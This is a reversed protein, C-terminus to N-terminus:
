WLWGVYDMIEILDIGIFVLMIVCGVCFGYFIEGEDVRMESLYVKLCLEVVLFFFVVDCIGYDFIIFCFLYGKIM